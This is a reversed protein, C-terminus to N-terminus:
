TLAPIARSLYDTPLLYRPAEQASHKGDMHRYFIESQIISIRPIFSKVIPLTICIHHNFFFFSCITRAEKRLYNIINM